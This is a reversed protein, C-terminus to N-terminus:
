LLSTIYVMWLNVLLGDHCYGFVRPQVSVPFGASCFSYLSNLKCHHDDQVFPVEGLTVVAMVALQSGNGVFVSLTLPYRPSRFVEGHILKWGWDEQM